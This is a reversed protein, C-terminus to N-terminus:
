YIIRHSQTLTACPALTQQELTSRTKYMQM